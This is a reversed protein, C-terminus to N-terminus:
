FGSPAAVFNNSDRAAQVVQAWQDTLYIFHEMNTVYGYGWDNAFLEFM